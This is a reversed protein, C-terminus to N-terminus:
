NDGVIELYLLLFIFYKMKLFRERKYKYDIFYFNEGRLVLYSVCFLM